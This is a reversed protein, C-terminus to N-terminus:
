AMLKSRKPNDMIFVPSPSLGKFLPLPDLCPYINRWFIIDGGRTRLIINKGLVSFIKGKVRKEGGPPPSSFYVGRSRLWAFFVQQYSDMNRGQIFIRIKAMRTNVRKSSATPMDHFYYLVMQFSFYNGFQCVMRLQQLVIKWRCFKINQLHRLKPM